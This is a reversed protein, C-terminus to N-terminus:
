RRLWGKGKQPTPTTDWFAMGNSDNLEREIAARSKDKAWNTFQHWAEQVARDEEIFFSFVEKLMDERLKPRDNRINM